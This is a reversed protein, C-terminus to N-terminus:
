GYSKKINKKSQWKKVFLNNSILYDGLEKVDEDESEKMIISELIQELKFQVEYWEKM